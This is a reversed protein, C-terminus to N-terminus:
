KKGCGKCDTGRQFWGAMDKNAPAELWVAFDARQERTLMAVTLDYADRHARRVLRDRWLADPHRGAEQLSRECGALFEALEHTQKEDLLLDARLREWVQTSGVPVSDVVVSVVPEKIAVAATESTQVVRAGYLTVVLAGVGALLGLIAFLRDM